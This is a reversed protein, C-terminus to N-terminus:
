LQCDLPRFSEPGEVTFQRSDVSTPPTASAASRCRSGPTVDRLVERVKLPEGSQWPKYVNAFDIREGLPPHTARWLKFLVGPRPNSLNDMQLKVFATAADHNDRTIELAFM